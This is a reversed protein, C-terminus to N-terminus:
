IYVYIYVSLTKNKVYLFFPVNRRGYHNVTDEIVRRCDDEKSVDATIARVDMAGRKISRDAVMRLRGERRAVLVLM